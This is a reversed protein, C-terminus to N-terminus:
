RLRAMVIGFVILGAFILILGLILFWFRRPTRYRIVPTLAV